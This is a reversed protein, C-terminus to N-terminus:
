TSSPGNQGEKTFAVKRSVGVALEDGDTGKSASQNNPVQDHRTVTLNVRSDRILGLIGDQLIVDKPHEVGVEM